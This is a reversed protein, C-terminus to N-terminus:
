CCGIKKKMMNKTKFSCIPSERLTDQQTGCLLVESYLKQHSKNCNKFTKAYINNHPLASLNTLQLKADRPSGTISNSICDM